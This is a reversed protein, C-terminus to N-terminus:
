LVSIIEKIYNPINFEEQYKIEERLKKLKVEPDLTRLTGIAYRSIAEVVKLPISLALAIKEYSVNPNNIILDAVSRFNTFVLVDFKKKEIIDNRRREYLEVCNKYSIDIWNKIGIKFAKVGDHVVIKYPISKTAAELVLDQLKERPLSKINPLREILVKQGEHDSIDRITLKGEFELEELKKLNPKFEKPTGQIIFGCDSNRSEKVKFRLTLRGVGTEWLDKLEKKNIIDCGFNNKLLKYDDNLYAELLSLPTFGPILTSIGIGIGYCSMILAFPIPTPIYDAEQKTNTYNPRSPVYPLLDSIFKYLEKRLRTATYRPAASEQDRGEFMSCFGFCGEEDFIKSQVLQEVVQKLALDGHPHYFGLTHGIIQVTKTLKPALDVASLIVKKYSPKLGDIQSPFSRNTNTERGMVVYGNRVVNLVSDTKCNSM